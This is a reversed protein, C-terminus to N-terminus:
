ELSGTIDIYRANQTDYLRRRGCVNIWYQWQGGPGIVHVQDRPCGHQQSAVDAARNAAMGGCATMAVAAAILILRNM